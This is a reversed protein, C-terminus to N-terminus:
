STAPCCRATVGDRVASRRAQKPHADVSRSREQRNRERRAALRRLGHRGRAAGHEPVGASPVKRRSFKSADKEDIRDKLESIQRQLVNAAVVRRAANRVQEPTFPKPLYDVAGLKM